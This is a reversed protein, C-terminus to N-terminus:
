ALMRTTRMAAGSLCRGSPFTSVSGWFRDSGVKGGARSRGSVSSSTYLIDQWKVRRHARRSFTAVCSGRAARGAAQRSSAPSVTRLHREQHLPGLTLKFDSARLVFCIGLVSIRFPLPDPSNSNRIESKKRIENKESGRVQVRVLHERGYIRHHKNRVRRGQIGPAVVLRHLSM